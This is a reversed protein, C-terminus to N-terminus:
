FNTLFQVSIFQVSAADSQLTAQCGAFYRQDPLQGICTDFGFSFM